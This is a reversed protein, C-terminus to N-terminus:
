GRRRKVTIEIQRSIYSPSSGLAPTYAVSRLVEEYQAVTATGSLTLTGTSADYSGAIGHAATFTLNDELPFVNAIKVVAGTLTDSDVDGLSLTPDIFTADDPDFQIGGPTLTVVPVDNVPNVVIHIEQDVTLGGKDQARVVITATGFADRASDLVLTGTAPDIHVGSFLSHNSTILSLQLDSDPNEIDNFLTWLDVTSRGSDESLTINVNPTATPNDNVTAIEIARDAPSSTLAGDTVTFRIARTATNPNDSTNAYTVSRL